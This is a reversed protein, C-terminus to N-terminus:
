QRENDNKRKDYIEFGFAQVKFQKYNLCHDIIKMKDILLHAADPGWFAGDLNKIPRPMYVKRCCPCYLKVTDVECHTSKGIPLLPEERCNVRPCTGFVRKEYKDQFKDMGEPSMIYRAHIMGYVIPLNKNVESRYKPDVSEKKIKGSIIDACINFHTIENQLGFLNFRDNVFDPSIDVFWSNGPDQLFYDKWELPRPM